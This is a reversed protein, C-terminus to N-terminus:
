SSQKPHNRHTREMERVLTSATNKAGPTIKAGQPLRPLKGFRHCSYVGDVDPTKAFRHNPADRVVLVPLGHERMAACSGSKEILYLPTTAVGLDLTNLIRSVDTESREGLSVVLAQGAMQERMYAIDSAGLNSKGFFVVVLRVGARAAFPVVTTTARNLDWGPYVAGFVGALYFSKRNTDNIDVDSLAPVFIDRWADGQIPSINGFLPLLGAPIGEHRLAQVYPDAHTTVILPRLQDHLKRMARKQLLGWARHKITPKDDLGLWLEHYMIHFRAHGVADRLRRGLGFCIGKAQYAFPVFQLSVWDPPFGALWERTLAVRRSWSLSAPLRLCEVSDGDASQVEIMAQLHRDRDPHPADALALIRVQQGQKKLEVALRRTYDGVGNRGHELSGCVLLLKM